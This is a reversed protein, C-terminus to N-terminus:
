GRSCRRTRSLPVATPAPLPGPTLARLLMPLTRDLERWWYPPSHTGPAPTRVTLDVIRSQTRQEDAVRAAERAHAQAHAEARPAAPALLGAASVLAPTTLALFRRRDAM